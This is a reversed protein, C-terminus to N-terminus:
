RNRNMNVGLHHDDVDWGFEDTLRMCLEVRSHHAVYDRFEEDFKCREEIYRRVETYKGKRPIPLIDKYKAATYHSNKTTNAQEKESYASDEVPAIDEVQQHKAQDKKSPESAANNINITGGSMHGIVVNPSNLIVSM